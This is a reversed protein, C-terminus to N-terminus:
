ANIELVGMMGLDEHDLIHCHYVLKGTFDPFATRVRVREGARVLVVDRWAAELSGDPQIVQFPNTHIHMPHDMGIPNVFEWEEIDGLRVQTDIRGPDFTRGNIAFSMSGGMMGAGMSQGLVFSRTQLPPPLPQVPVLKQPLPIVQDAQGAYVLTAITSPASNSGGFGAMGGMMGMGVGTVGRNYTLNLLRYSGPPRSGQIMLDARQGPVLLLENLGAPAPLSGGDSAIQYLDHEELQLRYFRSCSANVLRLRVWGDKQIPVTPNLTGSAAVLSGERGAVEQMFSPEIPQGNAGVTVDQLVIVVEQAAQIEPIADLEGRVIVPAALGRWVQRAVSGHMHPHIWFTGAPHSPLLPLEYQFQEGPAVTIFSNDAAGTPSVHLGHFHLNTAEPLSNTFRVRITDGPRAAILPGPVQNNYGYLYAQRGAFPIWGAKAELGVQVVGAAAQPQFGSSRARYALGASAGAAISLFSRRNM